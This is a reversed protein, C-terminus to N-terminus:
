EGLGISHTAQLMVSVCRSLDMAQVENIKVRQAWHSHLGHEGLGMSCTAQLIACM